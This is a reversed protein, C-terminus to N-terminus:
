RNLCFPPVKFFILTMFWMSHLFFTTTVSKAWRIGLNMNKPIFYNEPLSICANKRTFNSFLKHGTWFFIDNEAALNKPPPWHQEKQLHILRLFYKKGSNPHFTSWKACKKFIPRFHFYRQSLAVKLVKSKITQKGLFNPFFIGSILILFFLLAPSRHSYYSVFLVLLCHPSMRESTANM